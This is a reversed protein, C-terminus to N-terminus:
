WNSANRGGDSFNAEEGENSDQCIKAKESGNAEKGCRGDGFEACKGGNSKHDVKNKM